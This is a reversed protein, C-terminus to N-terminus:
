SRVDGVQNGVARVGPLREAVDAAALMLVLVPVLKAPAIRYSGRGSATVIEAATLTRLHHYLQGPSSLDVAAALETATAPRQVLTRVLALRTPHGLAALVDVGPGAPLQLLAAADYGISWNVPDGFDVTGQYGVEGATGAPPGAAARELDAVRSELAAVRDALDSM